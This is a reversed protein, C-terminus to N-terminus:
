KGCCPKDMEVISHTNNAVTNPIVTDDGYFVMDNSSM